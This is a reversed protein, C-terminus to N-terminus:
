TDCCSGRDCAKQNALEDGVLCLFPHNITHTGICCLEKCLYREEGCHIVFLAPLKTRNHPLSAKLRTLDDHCCIVWFSGEMNNFLTFHLNPEGVGITLLHHQLHQSGSLD